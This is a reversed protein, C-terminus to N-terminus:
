TPEFSSVSFTIDLLQSKDSRGKVRLSKVSLQQDASEINHLYRIAQTLSVNKLSVQVKTEVYHDNKGAQREEMSAISVSSQQALSDLLTRINQRGRQGQIRQEVGSLRSNIEAYERQLRLMAQIQQEATEVRQTTGDAFSLVPMVLGFILIAIVTMGGASGVLIQERPSLGSWAERLRELLESM